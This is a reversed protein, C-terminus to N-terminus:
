RTRPSPTAATRRGRRAPRGPRGARALLLATSAGAVRGGVVVVDYRREHGGAGCQAGAAALAGTAAAPARRGGRRRPPRRRHLPTAATSSASGSSTCVRPVATVGRHQRIAGDPAPSRCGCGRTTRGTAPPSCCPASARPACTWGRPAAPVPSRRAAARRPCVRRDLGSSPPTGTSRTSCGRAAAPRRRRHQAALDDPSSCRRATSAPSGAPWGCGAPRCRARPRPRPARSRAGRGVLQLSPERPGRRTACRTSPAPWGAPASAAVLLHGHRPLPAPMRTHRGVALVVERGARALEDAIQVGSASAGVVLVGGPPLQHRTATAPRRFSRSARTWARGALGARGAAARGPPSSWRAPRALQRPRHRGPLRRRRRGGDRVATGTLSRARRVLRRLAELYRVFQAAPM